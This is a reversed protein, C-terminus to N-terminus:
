DGFEAIVGDCVQQMSLRRDMATKQIWRFAAQEDLGLKTTLLGKARDLSKRAEFRTKMEELEDSLSRTDSWRRLAVTLAPGLDNWTFPKVVYGMVGADGARDVLHKDSFATLLVVPALHERGIEEAASIGDKAPMKVDFVALDPRHERVAALAAEGDSVAAVVDYGGAELMEVLDLRILAEDEAVVVRPLTNTPEASNTTVRLM